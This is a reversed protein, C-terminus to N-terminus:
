YNKIKKLFYIIITKNNNKLKELYRDFRQFETFFKTLPFYKDLIGVSDSPDHAALLENGTDYIAKLHRPSVFGSAGIIGFKKTM